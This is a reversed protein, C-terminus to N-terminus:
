GPWGETPIFMIIINTYRSRCVCATIIIVLIISIIYFAVCGVIVGILVKEDAHLCTLMSQM